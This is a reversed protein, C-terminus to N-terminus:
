VRESTHMKEVTEAGCAELIRLADDYRGDARVSVIVRGSEFQEQYYRAEEEPVGLGILAGVLGGAAAGAATSALISALLGGVVIPGIAPLLGAAIGIAWLGGLGAGAAMGALAGEGAHSDGQAMIKARDTMSEDRVALGIDEEAFGASKLDRIAQQAGPSSEFVGVAVTRNAIM